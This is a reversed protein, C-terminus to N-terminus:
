ETRKLHFELIQMELLNGLSALAAPRPVVNLFWLVRHVFFIHSLIPFSSDFCKIVAHLHQLSPLPQPKKWSEVNLRQSNTNNTVLAPFVLSYCIQRPCPFPAYWSFWHLMYWVQCECQIDWHFTGHAIWMSNQVPFPLHSTSIYIYSDDAYLHYLWSFLNGPDTLISHSM